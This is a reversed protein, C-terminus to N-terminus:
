EVSWHINIWGSAHPIRYMDEVERTFSEGTQPNTIKISLKRKFAQEIILTRFRKDDEILRTTFPKIGDREMEFLPSVTKFEIIKTM